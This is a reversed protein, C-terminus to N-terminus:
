DAREIQVPDGQRIRDLTEWGSVVRGFVVHNADLVPAPAVTLYVECSPAGGELRGRFWALSGRFHRRPTEGLEVEQEVRRSDGTQALLSPVVRHFGQYRGADVWALFADVLAPEDHAFLEIVVEGDGTRAIVRPLPGRLRDDSRRRQEAEWAHQLTQLREEGVLWRVRQVVRPHVADAGGASRWAELAVEFRQQCALALAWYAWREPTPEAEVAAGLLAEADEFRNEGLLCLGMLSLTRPDQPLVWLASEADPRALDLRGRDAYLWGRLRRLRAVRVEGRALDLAADVDDLLQQAQDRADQRLLELGTVELIERLTAQAHLLRDVADAQAQEPEPGAAGLRELDRQAELVAREAAEARTQARVLEADLARLQHFRQELADLDTTPQAWLPAAAVLVALAIWTAPPEPRRTTPRSTM